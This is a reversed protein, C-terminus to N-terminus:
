IDKVNTSIVIDVGSESLMRFFNKQIDTSTFPSSFSIVLQDEFSQMCIQPRRVSTFCDFMNIYPVLESAISIKGVNSLSATIGRDSLLGAIRLVIDKLVLPVVRM